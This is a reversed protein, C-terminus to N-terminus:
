VQNQRTEFPSLQAAANESCVQTSADRSGAQNSPQEQEQASGPKGQGVEQKQEHDCQLAVALPTEQLLLLLLLPRRLVCLRLWRACTIPGAAASAARRASICLDALGAM